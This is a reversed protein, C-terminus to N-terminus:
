HQVILKQIHKKNGELLKVIYLGNSFNGINLEQTNMGEAVSFRKRSVLIGAQNYVAMEAVGSRDANLQIFVNGSTITPYIKFANSKGVPNESDIFNNNRFATSSPLATCPNSQIMGFRPGGTAFTAQMRLSQEKSFMYMCRDYTYDMYNMWMEVVPGKCNSTAGAGPCGYNAADHLPTDDVLDNGCHRDGWIHRLNLYHGVEHTATRGLDYNGSTNGFASYLIVVGDISPNVTGPYYAYGLIGGGMNCVWINLNHEPDVADSGGSSNHKMADNTNFSTVSTQVRKTLVLCFSIGAGTSVATSYIDPIYSTIDSNTAAFDDNLITIQETVRADDINQEATNYVIHVVVPITVSTTPPPTGGGGNGGGPKGGGPNDPKKGNIRNQRKLAIYEQTQKEIGIMRATISPNNAIQREMVDNTACKRDQSYVSSFLCLFSIFIISQLFRLKM